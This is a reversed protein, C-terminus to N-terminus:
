HLFVDEFDSPVQRGTQEKERWALAAVLLALTKGSGTPSELAANQSTQIAKIMKAMLAM